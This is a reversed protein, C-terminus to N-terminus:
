VVRRTTSPRPRASQPETSGQWSHAPTAGHLVSTVAVGGSAAGQFALLEIVVEVEPHEDGDHEAHRQARDGGVDARLQLRQPIQEDLQDLHHDGRDDEHRHHHADRAHAVHLLDAAHAEFREDIELHHRRDGEGDPQHHHVDEPRARAHVHIDRGQVRARNRAVGCRGLLQVGRVVQQVHDRVRDHAGEGFALDQLYQDERDQEAEAQGPEALAALRHHVQQVLHGM